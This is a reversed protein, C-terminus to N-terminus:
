SSPVICPAAPKGPGPRRRSALAAATAAQHQRWHCRCRDAVRCRERCRDFPIPCHDCVAPPVLWAEPLHGATGLSGRWGPAVAPCANRTRRDPRSLYLIPFGRWCCRQVPASPGATLLPLRQSSAMLLFDDSPTTRRTGQRVSHLLAQAPAPYRQMTFWCCLCSMREQDHGVPHPSTEQVEQAIVSHTM